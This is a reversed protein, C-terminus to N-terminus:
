PTKGAGLCRGLFDVAIAMVEQADDADLMEIVKVPQGSMRSAILFVHDAPMGEKGLQVGKLDGARGRRMSIKTITDTGFEIPFRLNVTIPWETKREEM